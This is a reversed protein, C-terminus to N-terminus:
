NRRIRPVLHERFQQRSRGYFNFRFTTRSPVQAQGILRKRYPVIEVLGVLFSIPKANLPKILKRDQFRVPEHQGVLVQQLKRFVAAAPQGFHFVHQFGRASLMDANSGFLDFREHLFHKGAEQLKSVYLNRVGDRVAHNM